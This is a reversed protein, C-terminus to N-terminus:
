ENRRKAHAENVKNRGGRRRIPHKPQQQFLDSHVDLERRDHADPLARERERQETGHQGRRERAHPTTAASV